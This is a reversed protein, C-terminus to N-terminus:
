WISIGNSNCPSREHSFSSDRLKWRYRSQSIILDATGICHSPSAATWDSVSSNCMGRASCSSCVRRTWLVAHRDTLHIPLIFLRKTIHPVSCNLQDFDGCYRYTFISSFLNSSHRIYMIWSSTEKCCKVAFKHNPPISDTVRDTTHTDTHTNACFSIVESSALCPPKLWTWMDLIYNRRRLFFSKRNRRFYFQFQSFWNWRRPPFASRFQFQLYTVGTEFHDTCGRISVKRTDYQGAELSPQQWCDQRICRGTPTVDNGWRTTNRGDNLKTFM